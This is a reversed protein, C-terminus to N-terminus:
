AAPHKKQKDIVRMVVKEGFNMPATAVRLDFDLPKRTFQRFAIRGDQPLRKEAINLQAMIKIRAVLPQILQAPRLIHVDRLEGDIRYRVAVADEWPDIHIDSARMEYAEELLQNVLKIMPADEANAQALQQLNANLPIEEEHGYQTHLKDMVDHLHPALMPGTRQKRVGSGDFLDLIMHPPAIYRTSARYRRLADEVEILFPHPIAFSMSQEGNQFPVVHYRRCFPVPLVGPRVQEPQLEELLPLGTYNSMLEALTDQPIGRQEAREYLTEPTWAWEPDLQLQQSFFKM